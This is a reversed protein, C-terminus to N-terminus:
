IKHKDLEKIAGALDGRDKTESMLIGDARFDGQLVLSNLFPFRETKPGNLLSYKLSLFVAAILQKGETTKHVILCLFM